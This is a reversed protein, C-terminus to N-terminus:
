SRNIVPPPSFRIAGTHAATVEVLDLTASHYDWESDIWHYNLGVFRRQVANGKWSDFSLAFSESQQLSAVRQAV